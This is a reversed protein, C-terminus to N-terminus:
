YAHVHLRPIPANRFVKCILCEERLYGNPLRFVQWCPKTSIFATCAQRQEPSCNKIKWCQPKEIATAHAKLEEEAEAQWHQDLKRLFYIIVLTVEIPLGLRMLLGFCLALITSLNEM